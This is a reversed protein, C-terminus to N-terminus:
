GGFARRQQRLPGHVDVPPGAASEEAIPWPAERHVVAVTPAGLPRRGFRARRRWRMQRQGRQLELEVRHPHVVRLLPNTPVGLDQQVAAPAAVGPGRLIHTPQQLQVYRGGAHGQAAAPVGPPRSGAVRPEHPLLPRGLLRDDSPSAPAALDDARQHQPALPGGVAPPRLEGGLAGGEDLVDGRAAAEPTSTPRHDLGRLDDAPALPEPGQVAGRVEHLVAAKGVGLPCRGLGRM